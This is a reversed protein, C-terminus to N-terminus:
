TLSCAIVILSVLKPTKAYSTAVTLPKRVTPKQSTM